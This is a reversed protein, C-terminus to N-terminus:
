HYPSWRSRCEKGVRREESRWPLRPPHRQVVDIGLAVYAERHPRDVHEVVRAAREGEARPHPDVGGPFPLFLPERPLPRVLDHHVLGRSLFDIGHPPLQPNLESLPPPRPLATSPPPATSRSPCVSAPSLRSTRYTFKTFSGCVTNANGNASSPRNTADRCRGM